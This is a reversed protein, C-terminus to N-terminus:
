PEYTLVESKLEKNTDNGTLSRALPAIEGLLAMMDIKDKYCKM